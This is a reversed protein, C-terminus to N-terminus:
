RHRQPEPPPPPEVRAVPEELDGVADVLDAPEVERVHRDELALAAEDDDIRQDRALHRAGGEGEVALVAAVARHGRDDVGVAVGVVVAPPAPAQALRPPGRPPAPADGGGAEHRPDDRRRHPAPPPSPPTPLNGERPGTVRVRRVPTTVSRISTWRISPISITKWSAGSVSAGASICM